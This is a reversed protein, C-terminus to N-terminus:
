AARVAAIALCEYARELADRLAPDMHAGVWSMATIWSEERSRGSGRAVQMRVCVATLLMAHREAPAASEDCELSEGSAVLRALAEIRRTADRRRMEDLVARGEDNWGWAGLSVAHRLLSHERAPLALDAAAANALQLAEAAAGRSRDSGHAREIVLEIARDQALRYRWANQLASAALECLAALAERDSASPEGGDSRDDAVLLGELGLPGRMPAMLTLGRTVFGALEARLEPFRELESRRVPRGLGALIAALEGQVDLRLATFPDFAVGRMARLELRGAEDGPTLMAVIGCGLVRQAALMVRECIEDPDLSRHLDRGLGFALERLRQERKRDQNARRAEEQAQSLERELERARKRSDRVETARAILRKVRAVLEKPSFPKELFDDAGRALGELRSETDTSTSMLVVPVQPDEPDHRLYDCVELGSKRPLRVELLVLDPREALARRIAEDGDVATIVRLHHSTLAITLLEVVRADDDAILVLPAPLTRGQSSLSPFPPM